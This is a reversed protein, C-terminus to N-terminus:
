EETNCFHASFDEAHVTTAAHFNRAINLHGFLEWHKGNFGLVESRRSHGDDRGGRGGGTVFVTNNMSVTAMSIMPRPLPEANIWAAAGTTLIETSALISSSYAKYGGRGGTVLLVMQGDNNHYSGCGHYRRGEQMSPLHEVFGQLNYRAVTQMTDRGGTLIVSDTDPISCAYRTDQILTFHESTSTLSDVGGMLVLGISSVWSSHGDRRVGDGYETWKFPSRQNVCSCDTWRGDFCTCTGQTDGAGGGCIVPYDAEKEERFNNQGYTFRLYSCVDMTHGNRNDTLDPLTCTEGTSPIFMEVSRQAGWGGSVLIANKEKKEPVPTNTGSPTTQEQCGKTDVHDEVMDKLQDMQDRTAVEGCMNEVQLALTPTNGQDLCTITAQSCGEKTTVVREGPQYPVGEYCCLGTDLSTRWVGKKCTYRICGETRSTGDIGKPNQCNGKVGSVTATQLIILLCVAKIIM